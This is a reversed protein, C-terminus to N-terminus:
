AGARPPELRRALRRVAEAVSEPPASTYCLRVWDAYAEGCSSGPAVVVGEELCEELFELLNRGQLVPRVDLFLFCSGEPPPQGLVRAADEGAARYAGRVRELWPGGDRLAALAAWQGATPGHYATHVGVKHAQAVLDPPGALYGVRNGAMGYAKSFSFVSVTREPALTALSVHQGRYVYDEYVEDSLIWLDRRRAWGALAELWAQPIVRGTPNSPTSVYLAVTRESTHAEVAEVAAEPSEVRDFFPVEVPRGRQARVIGRILPWFPALILVEEGPDALASVACALGGTAGATVLVQDREVPIRNRTRLKEVLADVLPPIGGTECYRHMGPHEAVTLDEMRGGEFPELWTDGVHLPYIPGPHAAIRDALPSFVSSGVDAVAAAVRRKPNGPRPM